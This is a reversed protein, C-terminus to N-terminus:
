MSLRLDFFDTIIFLDSLAGENQYFIIKSCPTHHVKLADGQTPQVQSKPFSVQDPHFLRICPPLRISQESMFFRRLGLPIRRQM